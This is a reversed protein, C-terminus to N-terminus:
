TPSVYQNPQNTTNNTHQSSLTLHDQTVPLLDPRPIVYGINLVELLGLSVQNCKVIVSENVIM